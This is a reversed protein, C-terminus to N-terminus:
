IGSFEREYLKDSYGVIMRGNAVVTPARLNGTRGLILGAMTEDDPTSKSVRTEQISSGKTAIVKRCRRAM